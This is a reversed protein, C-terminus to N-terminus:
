VATNTAGRMPHTSQFKRRTARHAPRQLTAGRMPHTSQFEARNIIGSFSHCDCGAHPAHISIRLRPALVLVREATAGRMPHTSQFRNHAGDIDLQKQDCGAHPAHISIACECLIASQLDHRVGCPTRPNFYDRKKLLTCSNRGTAGRMPHTSQFAAARIKQATYPPRVGCPTRPNFYIPLDSIFYALSGDCGARPAHISIKKTRFGSKEVRTAGRVPHTSQFETEFLARQVAIIRQM